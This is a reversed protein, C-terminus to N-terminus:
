VEDLGGIVRLFSHEDLLVIKRKRCQVIAVDGGALLWELAFRERWNIPGGYHARVCEVPAFIARCIDGKQAQRWWDAIVTLPTATPHEINRSGAADRIIHTM